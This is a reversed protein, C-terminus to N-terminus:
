SRGAHRALTDDFDVAEIEGRRFAALRDKAEEAWLRELDPDSRDLSELIGEVLEAREVPPLRSAQETLEKIRENM